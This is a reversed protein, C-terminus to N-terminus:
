RAVLTNFVPMPHFITHCVKPSKGAETNTCSLQLKSRGRYHLPTSAFVGLLPPRSSARKSQPMETSIREVLPRRHSWNRGNRPCALWSKTSGENLDRVTRLMEVGSLTQAGSHEALKAESLEEVTQWSDRVSRGQAQVERETETGGGAFWGM